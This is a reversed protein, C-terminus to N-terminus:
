GEKKIMAEFKKKDKAKLYAEKASIRGQQVLEELSNDMTRMGIGRNNQILNNLQPTSGERILNPLATTRLLVENAACRGKGDATKLLLQSVIGALSESLSLRIQAQADSPFADILRDVTKAASNTHLTGFVM